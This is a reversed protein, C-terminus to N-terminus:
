QKDEGLLEPHDFVSGIAEVDDKWVSHLLGHQIYKNDSYKLSYESEDFVVIARKSERLIIDGEFIKKGNKDTMGTFECVTEPDVEVFEINAHYSASVLMYDVANATIIYTRNGKVIYGEVWEGTIINKGRYLIERM